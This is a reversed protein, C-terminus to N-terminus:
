PQLEGRDAAADLADRAASRGANWAQWATLGEERRLDDLRFGLEMRLFETSRQNLRPIARLLSPIADDDLSVLYAEDLGSQGHEPVLSPDLVRAVNQ